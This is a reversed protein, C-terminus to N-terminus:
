PTRQITERPLAAGCVRMVGRNWDQDGTAGHFIRELHYIGKQWSGIQTTNRDINM